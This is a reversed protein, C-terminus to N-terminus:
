LKSRSMSRSQLHHRWLATFADVFSAECSSCMGHIARVKHETKRSSGLLMGETENILRRANAEWDNCIVGLADVVAQQGKTRTTLKIERRQEQARLLGHQTNAAFELSGLINTDPILSLLKELKEIKKDL